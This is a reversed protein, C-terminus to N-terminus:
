RITLIPISNVTMIAMPPCRSLSRVFNYSVSESSTLTDSLAFHIRKLNAMRHLCTTHERELEHGDNVDLLLMLPINAIYKARGMTSCNISEARRSHSFVHSVVMNVCTARWLQLVIKLCKRVQLLNEIQEEVASNGPRDVRTCM